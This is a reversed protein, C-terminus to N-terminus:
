FQSNLAFFAAAACSMWFMSISFKVFINSDTFLYGSRWTSPSLFVIPGYVYAVLPVLTFSVAGGLVFVVACAITMAVATLRDNGAVIEDWYNTRFLSSRTIYMGALLSLATLDKYTELDFVRSFVLAYLDPLPVYALLLDVIPYYLKRYFAVIEALMPALGINLSKQVLSILSLTSAAISFVAFWFSFQSRRGIPQDIQAM